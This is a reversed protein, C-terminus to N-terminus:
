KLRVTYGILDGVGVEKSLSKADDSPPVCFHIALTVHGRVVDELMSRLHRLAAIDREDTLVQNMNVFVQGCRRCKFEFEAKVQAM